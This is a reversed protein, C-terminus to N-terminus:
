MTMREILTSVGMKDAVVRSLCNLVSAMITLSHEERLRHVLRSIAGEEIVAAVGAADLFLQDL